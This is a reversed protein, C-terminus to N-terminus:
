RDSAPVRKRRSRPVGDRRGRFLSRTSCAAGGTFRALEKLWAARLSESRTVFGAEATFRKLRKENEHWGRFFLAEVYREVFAHVRTFSLTVLVAIVADVAENEGRGSPELVHGVAWETLAFASLMIVSVAGYVLTRNLVFGLDVVKHRLVAYAFLLPGVFSLVVNVDYLPNEPDMRALKLVLFSYTQVATLCFTLLLAILLLGFRARVNGTSYLYGRAFYAVSATGRLYAAVVEVMLLVTALRIPPATYAMADSLLRTM